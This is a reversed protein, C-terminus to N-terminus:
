KGQGSKNKSPDVLVYDRNPRTTPPLTHGGPMTVERGPQGGRPGIEQYQGPKSVPQGPKLHEPMLINRRRQTYSSGVPAGQVYIDALPHFHRFM